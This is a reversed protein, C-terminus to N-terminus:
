GHVHSGVKPRWPEEVHRLAPTAGQLAPPPLQTADACGLGDINSVSTISGARNCGYLFGRLTQGSANLWTLSTLRDRVDYACAVELGVYYLHLPICARQQHQIALRLRRRPLRLPGGPQRRRAHLRAIAADLETTRSWRLSCPQSSRSM